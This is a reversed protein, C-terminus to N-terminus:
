RPPGAMGPTTELQYGDREAIGVEVINVTYFHDSLRPHYLRYLPVLADNGSINAPFVYCQIGEPNYGLHECANIYEAESTTYFHDFITPNFARYFPILSEPDYDPSSYVMCAVGEGKYGCNQIANDYEALSTTYFHDSRADNYARYLPIELSPNLMKSYGARWTCNGNEDVNGEIIDFTASTVRVIAFNGNQSAGPRFGDLSKGHDPFWIRIPLPLPQPSHDHGTLCAIVNYPELFGLLADREADSWNPSLTECNERTLDLSYHQVIIVPRSTGRQALTQKLWEIGNARGYEGDGGYVHLQYVDVPGLNVVYNFSNLKWDFSGKGNADIATVPFAPNTPAQLWGTEVGSHMQCIFNWMQWRWYDDVSGYFLGGAWWLVGPVYDSQVDHNGLGFYTNYITNTTDSHFQLSSYNYNKQFMHRMIELEWGGNYYAPINAFQDLWNYDGGCQCLDGGFFIGTNINFPNGECTLGFGSPWSLNPLTNLFKNLTNLRVVFKNQDDKGDARSPQSDALFIFTAENSDAASKPLELATMQTVIAGVDIKAAALRQEPSASDQSVDTAFPPTAALPSLTPDFYGGMQMRLLRAVVGGAREADEFPTPSASLEEKAQLLASHFEKLLPNALLADIAEIVTDRNEM